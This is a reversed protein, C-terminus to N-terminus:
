LVGAPTNPTSPVVILHAGAPPRYDSGERREFEDVLRGSANELSAYFDPVERRATVFWGFHALARDHEVHPYQRVHARGEFITVLRWYGPVLDTTPNATVLYPSLVTDTYSTTRVIRHPSRREM